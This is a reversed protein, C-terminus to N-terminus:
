DTDSSTQLTADSKGVRAEVEKENVTAVELVLGLIEGALDQHTLGFRDAEDVTWVPHGDPTTVWAALLEAQLLAMAVQDGDAEQIRQNVRVVDSLRAERLVVPGIGPVDM